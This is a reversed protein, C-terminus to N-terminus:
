EIVGIVTPTHPIACETWEFSVNSAKRNKEPTFTIASTIDVPLVYGRASKYFKTTQDTTLWRIADEIEFNSVFEMTNCDVYGIMSSLQGSLVNTAGHQINFFRGFTQNKQVVANNNVPQPQNNADFYFVKDVLYANYADSWNAVVLEECAVYGTITSLGTVERTGVAGAYVRGEDEPYLIYQYDEDNAASFDILAKPLDTEGLKVTAVPFQVTGDEQLRYFTLKEPASGTAPNIAMLRNNFVVAFLTDDTIPPAYQKDTDSAYSEDNADVVVYSLRSEDRGIIDIRM